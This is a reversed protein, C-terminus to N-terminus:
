LEDGFSYRYSLFAITDGLILVNKRTPINIPIDAEKQEAKGGKLVSSAPVVGCPPKPNSSRFANVFESKPLSLM